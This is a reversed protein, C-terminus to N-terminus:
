QNLVGDRDLKNYYEKLKIWASSQSLSKGLAEVRYTDSVRIEDSTITNGNGTIIVFGNEQDQDYEKIVQEATKELRKKGDKGFEPDDSRKMAEKGDYKLSIRVNLNEKEKIKSLDPDKGFLASFQNAIAKKWDSVRSDSKNIHMLSAEYLSASLDIEKVGEDKIMRLKSTKAIRDLEFDKLIKQNNTVVLVHCIYKLLINERVGSPCIIVHNGNIYAFVEGNLYDKGEPAGYATVSSKKARKSKDIISTAEDPVYSAIQLYLGGDVAFDAGRVEAGSGIPFSRKGVTDLKEHADTLIKELTDKGQNDWRARRYYFKKDKHQSNKIVM